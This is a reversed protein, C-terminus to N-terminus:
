TPGLFSNSNERKAEGAQDTKALVVAGAERLASFGERMYGMPATRYSDLPMLLDFLVINLNRALKLHQHGDDLLVVDPREEEFYHALNESRKRGVVIATNQTRGAALVAEDGYDTPNHGIRGGSRLIGCSNELRGKYGRILIMVKKGQGHVYDALWLTFPTKGPGGFTLNGVSIIPVEFAEQSFIGHRYFFRRLRYVGEWLFSLPFFFWGILSINEKLKTLIWM